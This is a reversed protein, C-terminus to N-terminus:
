PVTRSPPPASLGAANAAQERACRAQQSRAVWDLHLSEAEDVLRAHGIWIPPRDQVFVDYIRPGPGRNAIAYVEGQHEPRMTRTATEPDFFIRM